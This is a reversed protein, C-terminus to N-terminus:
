TLVALAERIVSAIPTSMVAHDAVADAASVVPTETVGHPTANRQM